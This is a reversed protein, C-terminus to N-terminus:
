IMRGHSRVAGPWPMAMAMPMAMMAGMMGVAHTDNLNLPKLAM